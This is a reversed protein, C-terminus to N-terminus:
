VDETIVSQKAFWIDVPYLHTGREIIFIVNRTRLLTLTITNIVVKLWIEAIDHRDSKNTSSVPNDPSFWRSVVLWQCVKYSLTADLVGWRLPIRFWLMLPSLWQNCLYNYILSGNSWSWSPGEQVYSFVMSLSM